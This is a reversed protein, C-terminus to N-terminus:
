DNQGGDKIEHDVIHLTSISDETIIEELSLLKKIEDSSLKKNLNNM